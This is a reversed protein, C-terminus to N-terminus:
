RDPGAQRSPRSEPATMRPQAWLWSRHHRRAASTLVTASLRRPSTSSTRLTISIQAKATDSRSSITTLANDQASRSSAFFCSLSARFNRACCLPINADRTIRSTRFLIAVPNFFGRRPIPYAPCRRPASGRSKPGQKVRAQPPSGRECSPPSGQHSHAKRCFGALRSRLFGAPLWRCGPNAAPKAPLIPEYSQRGVFHRPQRLPPPRRASPRNVLRGSSQGVQGVACLAEADPRPNRSLTFAARILAYAVALARLPEQVACAM